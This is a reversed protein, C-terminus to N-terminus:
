TAPESLRETGEWEKGASESVRREEERGPGIPNVSRPPLPFHTTVFKTVRFEM